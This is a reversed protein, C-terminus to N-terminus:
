VPRIKKVMGPTPSAEQLYVRKNREKKSAGRGIARERDRQREREREREREDDIERV